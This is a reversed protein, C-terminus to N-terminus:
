GRTSAILKNIAAPATSGVTRATEKKGKYAILTSQQTARFRRVVDKQHDFDVRFVILDKNAPNALAAAIAPQQKACVPCWPAFVDILIPRGERQAAEFGAQSYPMHAPTDAAMAAPALAVASLALAPIALASSLILTFFHRNM